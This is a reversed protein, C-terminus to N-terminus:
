KAKYNATALAPYKMTADKVRKDNKVAGTMFYDYILVSKSNGGKTQPDDWDTDVQYWKGDEMKVYNWAHTGKDGLNNTATGTVILCPIGKKDCAYKFAKAYGDCVAKGEVLPGVAQHQNHTAKDPNAPYQTGNVIADHISKVQEYTNSGGMKKVAADMKSTTNKIATTNIKSAKSGDKDATGYAAIPRPYFTLTSHDNSVVINQMTDLWFIEPHEDFIMQVSTGFAGYVQKETYGKISVTIKNKGARLGSLFTDHMKLALKDKALQTRCFDYSKSKGSTTKKKSTAETTTTTKSTSANSKKVTAASSGMAMSLVMTMALAASLIKKFM